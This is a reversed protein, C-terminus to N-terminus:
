LKNFFSDVFKIKHIQKLIVYTTYLCVLGIVGPTGGVPGMPDWLGLSVCITLMILVQLWYLFIYVVTNFIIKLLTKM